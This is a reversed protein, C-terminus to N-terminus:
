LDPAETGDNTKAKVLFNDFGAGEMRYQYLGMLQDRVQDASTQGRRYSGMYPKIDNILVNRHVQGSYHVSTKGDPTAFEYRDPAQALSAAIEPTPALLLSRAQDLSMPTLSTAQANMAFVLAGLLTIAKL